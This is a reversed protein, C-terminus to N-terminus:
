ACRPDRRRQRRRRLTTPTRPSWATSSTRCSSPSTRRRGRTPSRRGAHVRRLLRRRRRGHAAAPHRRAQHRRARGLDAWKERLEWPVDEHTDIVIAGKVCGRPTRPSSRPARRRRCRPSSPSCRRSPLACCAARRAKRSRGGNAGGSGVSSSACSPTGAIALDESRARHLLPLQRLARRREAPRAPGRGRRPPAAAAVAERRDRQARAQAAAYEDDAMAPVRAFVLSAVALDEDAECRTSPTTTPASSPHDVLPVRRWGAGDWEWVADRREGDALCFRGDHALIDRVADSYALAILEPSEHTVRVTRKKAPM